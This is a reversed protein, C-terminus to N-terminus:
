CCFLLLDNLMYKQQKTEGHVDSCREYSQCIPFCPCTLFHLSLQLVSYLSANLIVDLNRAQYGPSHLHCLSLSSICTPVCTQPSPAPETPWGLLSLPQPTQFVPGTTLSDSGCIFKSPVHLIIFAALTLLFKSCLLYHYYFCSINISHQILM